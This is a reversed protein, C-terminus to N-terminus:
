PSIMTAISARSRTPTALRPRATARLTTRDDPHDPVTPGHPGSTAASWAIPTSRTFRSFTSMSGGPSSRRAAAGTLFAGVTWLWSVKSIEKWYFDIGSRENSLPPMVGSILCGLVAVLILLGVLFVPPAFMALYEWAGGRGGRTKESGGALVGSISTALWGTGLVTSVLPGATAILLPGYFSIGFIGAWAVAGFMLFAGLSARWERIEEEEAAGLLGSEIATSLLIAVIAVPPGFATMTPAQVHPSFELLIARFWSMGAFLSTASASAALFSILARQWFEAWGVRVTRSRGQDDRGERPPKRTRRLLWPLWSVVFWILRLFGAFLGFIVARPVFRALPSDPAWLRDIFPIDLDLKDSRSFLFSFLVAATFLPIVVFVIFWWLEPRIQKALRERISDADAGSAGFHALRRALLFLYMAILSAGSLLFMSLGLILKAWSPLPAQFVSLALRPALIVAMAAPLLILQNLSLNRGYTLLMSWTDISLPGTSPTLYNSYRRLHYIPAPEEEVVGEIRRRGRDGPGGDPKAADSRPWGRKADAQNIRIPHLQKQVNELDGERRIWAALWAGIYGGGSVTSLYDFAGLLRFSALGQLIGLNFTASRIGGGSFALGVLDRNLTAKRAEDAIM